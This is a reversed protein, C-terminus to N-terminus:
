VLFCLIVEKLDILYIFFFYDKIWFFAVLVVVLVFGLM